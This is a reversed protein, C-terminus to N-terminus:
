SDSHGADTAASVSGFQMLASILYASFMLAESQRDPGAQAYEIFRLLMIRYGDIYHLTYVPTEATGNESGDGVVPGHEDSGSYGAIISDAVEFGYDLLIRSDSSRAQSSASGMTVSVIRRGNREATGVFCNGAANTSGTKLGDLGTYQGLLPNTNNYKLERFTVTKQQSKKLVEPHEMILNRSLEAMGHPTISNKASGGYSDFFEADIGLQAVKENMRNVFAAKDGCLAEGLADTAACASVVIVVDLLNDIKVLSDKPLPVNSYERNYSFSSVGSSIKTVTDLSIEGAKVADYIVYVALLKTMSAPVRHREEEFGFLQIGTEFDLVCAGKSTIEEDGVYAASAHLGPVLALLMIFVMAAATIRYAYQRM